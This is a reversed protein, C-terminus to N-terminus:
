VHASAGDEDCGSHSRYDGLSRDLEMPPRRPPASSIQSIIRSYRSAQRLKCGEGEVHFIPGLM